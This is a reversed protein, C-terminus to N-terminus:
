RCVHHAFSALQGILMRKITKCVKGVVYNVRFKRLKIQNIVFM